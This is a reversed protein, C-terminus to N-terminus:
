GTVYGLEDITKANNILAQLDLMVAEIDDDPNYDYLEDISTLLKQLQAVSVYKM